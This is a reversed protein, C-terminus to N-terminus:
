AVLNKITQQVAMSLQFLFFIYFSKKECAESVSVLLKRSFGERDLNKM